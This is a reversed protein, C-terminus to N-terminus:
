ESEPISFYNNAFNPYHVHKTTQLKKSIADVYKGIIFPM